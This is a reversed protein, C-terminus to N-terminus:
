RFLTFKGITTWDIPASRNAFKQSILDSVLGFAVSNGINFLVPYKEIITRRKVRRENDDNEM